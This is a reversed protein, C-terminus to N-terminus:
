VKSASDDMNVNINKNQMKKNDEDIKKDEVKKKNKVDTLFTKTNLIIKDKYKPSPKILQNLNFQILRYKGKDFEEITKSEYMVSNRDIKKINITRHISKNLKEKLKNNYETIYNKKRSYKVKEKDFYHTKCFSNPSNPKIMKAKWFNIQNFKQDNFYKTRHMNPPTNSLYLFNKFDVTKSKINNNVISKLDKNSNIDLGLKNMILFHKNKIKNNSSNKSKNMIKKIPIIKRRESNFKFLKNLESESNRYNKIILQSKKKNMKKEYYIKIEENLKRLKQFPTPLLKGKKTIKKGNIDRYLNSEQVFKVLKQFEEAFKAHSNPPVKYKQYELNFDSISSNNNIKPIEKESTLKDLFIKTPKRTNNKILNM